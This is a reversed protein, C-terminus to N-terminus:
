KARIKNAQKGALYRGDIKVFSRAETHLITIIFSEIPEDM